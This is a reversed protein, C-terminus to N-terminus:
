LHDTKECWGGAPRSWLAAGAAPETDLLLRRRGVSSGRGLTHCPEFVNWPSTKQGLSTVFIKWPLGPTSFSYKLSSHIGDEVDASGMCM